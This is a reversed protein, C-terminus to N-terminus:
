ENDVAYWEAFSTATEYLKLSYLTVGEPLAASITAAFDALMNECTPQYPTEVIRNFRERLTDVFASNDATRRVIFSHDLRDIILGNVIWKLLSFDMVMGYKPDSPNANPVGRVTVFLRYSHGHIQSCAGDYGELMHSAEFNFEKTLRVVAM